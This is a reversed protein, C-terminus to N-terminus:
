RISDCSEWTSGWIDFTWFKNQDYLHLSQIIHIQEIGAVVWKVLTQSGCNSCHMWLLNWRTTFDHYRAIMICNNGLWREFLTHMWHHCRNLTQWASQSISLSMFGFESFKVHRRWTKLHWSSKWSGWWIITIQRILPTSEFSNRRSTASKLDHFLCRSRSTPVSRYWGLLNGLSM